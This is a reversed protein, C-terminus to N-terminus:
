SALGSLDEETEVVYAHLTALKGDCLRWIAFYAYRTQNRGADTLVIEGVATLVDGEAVLRHVKVQTQAAKYSGDM